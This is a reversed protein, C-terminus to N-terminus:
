VLQIYVNITVGRSCNLTYTAGASIPDISQNSSMLTVNSFTPTSYNKTSGLSGDKSFTGNVYISGDTHWYLSSTQPIVGESILTEYSSSARIMRLLDSSWSYTVSLRARINGMPNIAEDSKTLEGARVVVIEENTLPESEYFRVDVDVSSTIEGSENQTENCAAIPEPNDVVVKLIKNGDLYISANGETKIFEAQSEPENTEMAFVTNTTTACLSLITLITIIKKWM